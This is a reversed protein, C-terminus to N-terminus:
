FQPKEFALTIVQPEWPFSIAQVRSPFLTFNQIEATSYSAQGVNGWSEAPLVVEWVLLCPITAKLCPM